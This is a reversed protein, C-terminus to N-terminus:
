KSGVATQLKIAELVETVTKKEKKALRKLEGERENWDLRKFLLWNNKGPFQPRPALKILVYEGKIKEGKIWVKILGAERKWLEFTGRDWIKVTGAGYNGQPIKGAFSAYELPHDETQVALHREGKEAPIGKPVAWSKLVGDLELRLDWHLRRAKHEQVVYVPRAKPASFKKKVVKYFESSVEGEGEGSPEPTKEFRRKSRYEKLREAM